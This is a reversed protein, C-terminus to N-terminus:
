RLLKFQFGVTFLIYRKRISAEGGEGCVCVCVSKALVKMFSFLICVYIAIIHSVNGNYIRIKPQM